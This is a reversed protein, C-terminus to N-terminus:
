ILKEDELKDVDFNLRVAGHTRRKEPPPPTMYDEGYISSLLEHSKNPILFSKGGMIGDVVPYYKDKLFTHKVSDYASGLSVYSDKKACKNQATMIKKQLYHIVSMPILKSYFTRWKNDPDGCVKVFGITTLRRLIYQQKKANGSSKVAYDLPFIDIYINQKEKEKMGQWSKDWFVTNSKRIKAFPLWYKKDNETSQIYYGKPLKNKALELFREYDERPMEIDVDDDWPIINRHRVAGLLTGEALFYTINNERCIKDVVSLIELLTSHLLELTKESYGM